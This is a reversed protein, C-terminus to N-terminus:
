PLQGPLQLPRGAVAAHRPDPLEKAAGRDTLLGSLADRRRRPRTQTQDWDYLDSSFREDRIWTVVAGLLPLIPVEPGYRWLVGALLLAGILHQASQTLDGLINILDLGSVGRARSLHDQYPGSQLEALDARAARLMIGHNLWIELREQLDAMVGSSVSAGGAAALRLGALGPLVGGWWGTHGIAATIANVLHLVVVYTGTPVAAAALVAITVITAQLPAVQFLLRLTRTYARLPERM